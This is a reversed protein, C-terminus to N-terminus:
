LWIIYIGHKTYCPNRTLDVKECLPYDGGCTGTSNNRGSGNFLLPFLRQMGSFTEKYQVITRRMHILLRRTIRTIETVCHLM